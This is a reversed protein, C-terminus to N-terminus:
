NTVQTCVLEEDTPIAEIEEDCTHCFCRRAVPRSSELELEM